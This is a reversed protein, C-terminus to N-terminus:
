VIITDLQCELFIRGLLMQFLKNLNNKFVSECNTNPACFFMKIIKNNYSVYEIM